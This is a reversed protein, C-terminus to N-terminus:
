RGWKEGFSKFPFLEISDLRKLDHNITPLDYHSDVNTDGHGPFHKACALVGADQLGQMYATSKEAVDYRNEGFSRTNIVPNHPNNNVDAVPAFNVHVGLRKLQAGVEKGMEYVLAKDQIAGLTMQKPFSIADKYLRMGLGWEADMAVMLPYTSLQQYQNILRGHGLINGQFFCLGGVQYTKIQQEVSQM